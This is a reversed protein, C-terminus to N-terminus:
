REGCPVSYRARIEQEIERRGSQQQHSTYHVAVGLRGQSHRRWCSQREHTEVRSRVTASEGVDVLHDGSNRRDIIAYVGSRDDLSATSFHPGDFTYRGITINM